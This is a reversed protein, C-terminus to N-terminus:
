RGRREDAEVVSDALPWVVGSRPESSAFRHRYEFISRQPIHAVGDALGMEHAVAHKQDATLRPNLTVQVSVTKDGAVGWLVGRPRKEHQDLLDLVRALVFVKTPYGPAELDTAVLRWQDGMRELGLPLVFRWRASEGHKLGVYKLRVPRGEIAARTLPLMLGPKAPLSSAWKVHTVSLEKEAIGTRSYDNGVRDLTEMLDSEGAFAPPIAGIAPQVVHGQKTLLQPYHQLAAQMVRSASAEPMGFADVLDPRRVAGVRFARRVVFLVPDGTRATVPTTPSKAQSM